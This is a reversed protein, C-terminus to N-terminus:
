EEVGKRQKRWWNIIEDPMTNLPMTKQAAGLEVAKKPMGYVVSSIEDQAITYAGVDRLSKLGRAGDEGMGTLIIGIANRGVSEAISFFTYDVSPRHLNVPEGYVIRAYYMAGQREIKLHRGGPAVLAQGVMIRDGDSAEKITLASQENLSKAFSATFFEPMHQVIVMGPLSAPLRRLIEAIAVTGGTSAGIAIVKDSTEVVPGRGHTEIPSVSPTVSKRGIKYRAAAACLVVTGIQRQLAAMGEKIGLTPKAICDFAGLELAKVALESNKPTWSSIMVVPRPDEAMLKALFTLGDMRPMEVDLTLVDPDTQRIKQMAIIPDGATGVVKVGPIRQFTETLFARIFASDDIILVKVPNVMLCVELCSIRM